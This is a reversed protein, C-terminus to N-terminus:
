HDVVSSRYSLLLVWGLPSVALLVLLDQFPDMAFNLVSLDAVDHTWRSLSAEKDEGTSEHDLDRNSTFAPLEMIGIYKIDSVYRYAGYAFYGGALAYANYSKYLPLVTRKNLKFSKWTHEYAHLARLRHAFPASGPRTHVLHSSQLRIKYQLLPSKSILSHFRSSVQTYRHDNLM